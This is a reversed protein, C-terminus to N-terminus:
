GFIKSVSDHAKLRMEDTYHIYTNIVTDVTDGLLSAVTKIDVGNALLRTAYTHRLDHISTNPLYRKIMVSVAGTGGTPNNFLYLGSTTNKYELLIDILIPPIPIKRYSNKTKLNRIAYTSEGSYAFQKNVDIIANDLDIDDWTLGLIEGYRMGTYAAISCVIYYKYNHVKLSTLLHTVDDESIANIKSAQTKHLRKINKCPSNNIIRYPSVAYAFVKTIITICMNKSAISQQLDNIVKRIQIESIDKIKMNFLTNFKQFANDYAKFTSYVNAKNEDTYIKYFEILTIDKLSDDLPSTITKKLNDVIQQGYLKAERQTAFGQKSKQKWKYGDKYSVIIQYGKDKKRITFNYQM